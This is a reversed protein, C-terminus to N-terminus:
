GRFIYHQFHSVPTWDSYGVRGWGAIGNMDSYKVQTGDDSVAEVIAVHGLYGSSTQAIAGVKPSSSVVWGPTLAAYYAWTNANGWNSPAGSRAAAYYTCYGYDYGNSGYQASFSGASLLRSVGTATVQVQGNPILVQEGPQIGAIEADNYAVIQDVNAKYKTALSQVTDNAQVTYIIGNVPPINLHTGATVTDSTLNNSWKISDTTVGFKQAISTATDGAQVIYVQIDKRSKLATTVIQPKAIVTADSVSVTLAVRASQAQNNIAVGEPLDAMRAVNAAIDYSTLGDVPKTGAANAAVAAGAKVDHDAHSSTLVFFAVVGLVLVNAGILGYRVLRKRVSKHRLSKQLRGSLQLRKQNIM